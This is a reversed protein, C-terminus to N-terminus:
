DTPEAAPRLWGMESTDPALQRKTGTDLKLQVVSLLPVDKGYPLDGDMGLSASVWLGKWVLLDLGVAWRMQVTRRPQFPAFRWMLEPSVAFRTFTYVGRWGVDISYSPSSSHLGRGFQGVMWVSSWRKGLYAPTLWAGYTDVEARGIKWEAFALSMGGAMDLAFGQRVEIMDECDDQWAARDDEYKRGTRAQYADEFAGTGAALERVADALAARVRDMERELNLDEVSALRAEVMDALWFDAQEAIRDASDYGHDAAVQEARAIVEGLPPAADSTGVAWPLAAVAEDVAAKVPPPTEEELVVELEHIHGWLWEDLWESRYLQLEYLDTLCSRVDDRQDGLDGQRLPLRLGVGLSQHDATEGSLAVSVALDHIPPLAPGAGEFDMGGDPDSAGDAAGGAAGPNVLERARQKHLWRKRAKGAVGWYYRELTLKPHPFLWYPTVEVALGDPLYGGEGFSSLLATALASPTSPRAVELDVDGMVVLAPSEATRQGNYPPTSPPDHEPPTDEEGEDEETEDEAPSATNGAGLLGGAPRAGAGATEADDPDAGAVGAGAALWAVATGVVIWGACRGSM